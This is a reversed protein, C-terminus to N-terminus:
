MPNCPALLEGAQLQALRIQLLRRRRCALWVRVAVDSSLHSLGPIDGCGKEAGIDGACVCM